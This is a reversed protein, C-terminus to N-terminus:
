TKWRAVAAAKAIERRREPTLNVARANGGRRARECRDSDSMKPSPPDYSEEIEGTAIRGVHVACAVDGTPRWEDNPGRAM